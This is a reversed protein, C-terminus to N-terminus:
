CQTQLGRSLEVKRRNILGARRLNTIASDIWVWWVFEFLESKFKRIFFTPLRDKQASLALSDLIHLFLESADLRAVGHVIVIEVIQSNPLLSFM